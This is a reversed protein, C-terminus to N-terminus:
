SYLKRCERLKDKIHQLTPSHKIPATLRAYSVSLINSWSWVCLPPLPILDNRELWTRVACIWRLQAVGFAEDNHWDSFFEAAAKLDTRKAKHQVAFLWWKPRVVLRLWITLSAPPAYHPQLLLQAKFSALNRESYIKHFCENSSLKWYNHQEIQRARMYKGAKEGIKKKKERSSRM